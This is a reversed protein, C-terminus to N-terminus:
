ALVELKKSRFYRCSTSKPLKLNISRCRTKVSRAFTRKPWFEINKYNKHLKCQCQYNIILIQHPNKSDSARSTKAVLEKIFFNKNFKKKTIQFKKNWLSYLSKRLFLFLIKLSSAFWMISSMALSLLFINVFSFFIFFLPFDLLLM